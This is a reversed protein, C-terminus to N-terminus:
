GRVVSGNGEAGDEDPTTGLEVNSPSRIDEMEVSGGKTHDGMLEAALPEDPYPISM